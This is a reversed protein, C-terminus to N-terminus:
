SFEDRCMVFVRGGSCASRRSEYLEMLRGMALQMRDSAWYQGIMAVQRRFEVLMVAVRLVIQFSCRDWECERLLRLRPTVLCVWAYLSGWELAWSREAVSRENLRIGSELVRSAFWWTRRAYRYRLCWHAHLQQM